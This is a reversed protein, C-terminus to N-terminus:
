DADTGPGLKTFDKISGYFVYRLGLAYFHHCWRGGRGERTHRVYIIPEDNPLFRTLAESCSWDTDAPYCLQERKFWCLDKPYIWNVKAISTKGQNNYRRHAM